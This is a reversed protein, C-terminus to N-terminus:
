PLITDRLALEVFEDYSQIGSNVGMTKLYRDNMSQQVGPLWEVYLNANQRIAALDSALQPCMSKDLEHRLLPAAVNLRSRISRLLELFACYKFNQNIEVTGKANLLLQFALFDAEGESAIGYAHSMEHASVFIQQARLLSGDVHAEGSFPFYIGTIGMKRLFAFPVSKPRPRGLVPINYQSFVAHATAHLARLEQETIFGTFVLDESRSAGNLYSVIRAGAEFIQQDQMKEIVALEVPRCAYNCGWTLLFLTVARGLLDPIILVVPAGKKRMKQIARWAWFLLVPLVVFAAPFPLLSVSHDWVFRFGQYLFGRYAIEPIAPFSRFVLFLLLAASGASIGPYKFLFTRIKNLTEKGSM